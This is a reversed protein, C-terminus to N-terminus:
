AAKGHVQEESLGAPHATSNFDIKVEREAGCDYCTQILKRDTPRLHPIGWYHRHNTLLSMINM